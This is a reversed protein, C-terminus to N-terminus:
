AYAAAQIFAAAATRRKTWNVYRVAKIAWSQTQFMSVMATATTGGTSLNTPNDLMELATENSIQIDVGGDDAVLIENQILLVIMNGFQPSGAIVANPSVIVPLGMWEGGKISIGPYQKVGNTTMMLSLKLATTPSMVWVGSMPDLNAAIAAAFVGAVDASVAAANTGSASTPTIGYLVSAPTINAVGGNNPDIFSVDVTQAVAKALDDRLMVEISPSSSKLVEDDYAALGAAKTIGLSASGTTGKSMPIPKGQGVWYGTTGGTLSGMRINFPVRRVGTLRGLITMPRLYDIFEAQMNEAYVLESAWGATTTDAAPIATMLVKAVEPTQDMWRRNAQVEALAGSRDGRSRALALAVRAFRIGPEINAGAFLIRSPARAAAAAAPEAGDDPTIPKARALIQKEHARLRVLHDDVTKVEAALGDYDQTQQEDLTSGTKASEAMIATMREASAARKAEFSSIQEQINMTRGKPIPTSPKGSAGPPPASLRVVPRAKEGSAALATRVDQASFAAGRLQVAITQASAKPKKKEYTDAFGSAVADEGSMWTEARMLALVDAASKGSRAAYLNAVTGDIKDLLDAFERMDAQNGMVLGHSSHIMLMAADGMKITDGAMAVISAASAALGLVNVTVKSGHERLLNYIAIGEFADGGPSNITVLVPAKGIAKLADKVMKATTFEGGWGSDGIEGLVEIEGDAKAASRITRDFRAVASAPPHFKLGAPKADMRIRPFVPKM